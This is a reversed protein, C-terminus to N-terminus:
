LQQDENTCRILEDMSIDTPRCAETIENVQQELKKTALLTIDSNRPGFRRSLYDAINKSGERHIFTIDYASLDSKWRVFRIPIRKRIKDEELIKKVSLADTILYFHRGYLYLHNTKCAWVCAFAEKELHSYNLEPASFAHSDCRVLKISEKVPDIQTLFSSCGNPGADVYLESVKKHDFFAMEEEMVTQKLLNYAEKEESGWKFVAGKKLLNRLPKDLSSQYPSRNKFYSTLGIFSHVEKINRPPLCNQLDEIKSKKPRVGDESVTVGFFTVEKQLFVCKEKNLTMGSESIRNLVATLIAQGEEKTSSHIMIDDLAVKVNKDMDQFMEQMTEQFIESATAIGMNMRNWYYLGWITAMATLLRSEEDYAIQNFADKFDLKSFWKSGALSNTLEPITPMNRKYRVLVKNFQKANSTIRVSSVKGQDDFKPVPQCPHIWTPKEGNARSIIGNEELYDLKQKTLEELGFPVKYAPQQCPKAATDVELHVLKGKLYGLEGTFLEPHSMFPHIWKIDINNIDTNRRMDEEPEGINPDQDSDIRIIGLSSATSYGLINTAEGNLVLYKAKIRTHKFKILTYFEGMLPIAIKSHFGYARTETPRLAPKNRITDYTELSIINLNTGTDILQKIKTQGITIYTTPCALIQSSTLENIWEPNPDDFATLSSIQNISNAQYNEEKSVSTQRQRYFEEFEGILEEETLDQITRIYSPSANAPPQTANNHTRSGDQRNNGRNNFQSYKNVAQKFPQPRRQDQRQWQKGVQGNKCVIALHNMRYCSTCEKGRAPCFNNQHPYRGGCAYCKRESDNKINFINEARNTQPREMLSACQGKLDHAKRWELLTTLTTAEDLCKMRTESDMTNTRIVSLVQAM